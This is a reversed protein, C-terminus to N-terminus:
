ERHRRRAPHRHHHHHPRPACQARRGRRRAGHQACARSRGPPPWAAEPWKRRLTCTAYAVAGRAIRSSSAPPAPHPTRKAGMGPRAYAAACSKPRPQCSTWGAPTRRPTTAAARSTPATRRGMRRRRHPDLRTSARPRPRGQSRWSCRSPPSSGVSCSPHTASLDCCGAHSNDTNCQRSTTNRARM